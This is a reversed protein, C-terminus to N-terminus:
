ISYMLPYIINYSCYLIIYVYCVFCDPPTVILLSTHHFLSPQKGLITICTPEYWRPWTLDIVEGPTFYTKPEEKVRKKSGSASAKKSLKDRRIQELREQLIDYYLWYFNAPCIFTSSPKCSSTKRRWWEWRWNWGRRAQFWCAQAEFFFISATSHKGTGPNSWSPCYWNGSSNRLFLTLSTYSSHPSIHTMGLPRYKFVFTALKSLEECESRNRKPITEKIGLRVRTHNHYESLIFLFVQVSM